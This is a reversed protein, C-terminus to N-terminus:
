RSCCRNGKRCSQRRQGALHRRASRSARLALMPLSWLPEGSASAAAALAKTSKWPIFSALLLSSASSGARRVLNRVETLNLCIWGQPRRFGKTHRNKQKWPPSQQVRQDPHASRPVDGACGLACLLALLRRRLHPSGQLIRASIMMARQGVSMARQWKDASFARCLPSFSCSSDREFACIASLRPRISLILTHARCRADLM